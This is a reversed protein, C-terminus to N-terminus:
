RSWILAARGRSSRSSACGHAMDAFLKTKVKEAGFKDTLIKVLSGGPGYMEPADGTAPMFYFPCQM